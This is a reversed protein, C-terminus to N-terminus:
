ELWWAFWLAPEPEIVENCGNIDTAVVPLGMVAGQLERGQQRAHVAGCTQPTADAARAPDHPRTMPGHWLAECCEALLGEDM